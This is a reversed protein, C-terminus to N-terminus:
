QPMVWKTVHNSKQPRPEPEKESLADDWGFRPPWVRKSTTNSKKLAHSVIETVPNSKQPRPKPERESFADDWGVLLPWVGKKSTTNLNKLVHSMKDCSQGKATLKPEKELFVDDWAFVSINTLCLPPGPYAGNDMGGKFCVDDWQIISYARM